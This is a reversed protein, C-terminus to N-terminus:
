DRAGGAGEKRNFQISKSIFRITKVGLNSRMLNRRMIMM